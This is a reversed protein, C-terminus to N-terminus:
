FNLPLSFSSFLIGPNINTGKISWYSEGHHVSEPAQPNLAIGKMRYWKGTEPDRTLASRYGSWIGPISNKENRIRSFLSIPLHRKVNSVFSKQMQYDRNQHGGSIVLQKKLM